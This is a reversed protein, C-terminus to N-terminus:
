PVPGKGAEKAQRIAEFLESARQSGILMPKRNYFYLKVGENGAMNFAVGKLGFRIGWGGYDSIPNYTVREFDRVLHLEVQVPKFNVPSFRLEVKGPYVETILAMRYFFLPLGIGVLVVLIAAEAGAIPNRGFNNGTVVQYIFGVWFIAAVGLIVVWLWFQTFRQKERFLLVQEGM